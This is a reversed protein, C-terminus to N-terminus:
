AQGQHRRPLTGLVVAGSLLPLVLSAFLFPWDSHRPVTFAFFIPLPATAALAVVSAGFVGRKLLVVAAAALGIAALLSLLGEILPVSLAEEEETALGFNALAFLLHFAAVATVAAALIVVIPGRM